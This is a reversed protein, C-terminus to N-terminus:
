RPTGSSSAACPLAKRMLQITTIGPHFYDSYVYATFRAHSDAVALAEDVYPPTQFNADNVEEPMVGTLRALDVVCCPM